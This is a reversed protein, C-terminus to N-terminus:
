KSWRLELRPKEYYNLKIDNLYSTINQSKMKTEDVHLQLVDLSPLHFAQFHKTKNLESASIIKELSRVGHQLPVYLLFDLVDQSIAKIKLEKKLFARILVARVLQAPDNKNISGDMSMEFDATPVTLSSSLRSHFDPCKLNKGENSAWKNFEADNKFIGGIFIFICKGLARNATGDFFKADQMPMLFSSLWGGMKGNYSTDFEDWLVFPIKGQLSVTQIHKLADVLSSSDKFQSLNYTLYKFKTDNPDIAKALQKAVFSKGSGPEGFISFSLIDKSNNVHTEVMSSLRLLTHAYEPSLTILKGLKFVTRERLEDESGCVIESATKWNAVPPGSHTIIDKTNVNGLLAVPLNTTTPQKWNIEGEVPGVYGKRVVARLRALGAKSCELLHKKNLEESLLLAQTLSYVFVIGGAVVTGYGERSFSGPQDGKYILLEGQKHIDPGVILAGDYAIQIVVYHLWEGKNWITDDTQLYDILRERLSEWNGPFWLSGDAMDQVPSFWIGQKTGQKRVSKWVDKLPDHTRVMYNRNRLFGHVADRNKALWGQNFDLFIAPKSKPIENFHCKNLKGSPHEREGATIAQEVSWAQGKKTNKRTLFYISEAIDGSLPCPDEANIGTAKLYQRLNGAGGDLNVRWFRVADVWAERLDAPKDPFGELYIFSDVSSDGAVLIGLDPKTNGAPRKSPTKKAVSKRAM